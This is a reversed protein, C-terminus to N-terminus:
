ENNEKRLAIEITQEITLKKGEEWYKSFKEESLQKKLKTITQENDILFPKDVKIRSSQIAAEVFGLLLTAKHSQNEIRFIEALYQISYAIRQKDELDYFKNLSEGIFEWALKYDGKHYALLGLHNLSVAIGSKDGVEQQLALCENYLKLAQENDGQKFVLIGLNSLSLAIGFKDGLERQLALSEEYFKQAQEYDGQDYSRIGLNNLCIAIGSKDGIERLLALSEDYFKQAQKYDGQIDTLLGLNNLSLAIGSKDGVERRLFLSEEIFKIAQEYNGQYQLVNGLSNLSKAIGSKDGIERWLFLSEEYFKQAQEYDGQRNAFFGASYLVKARSSSSIGHTNSLISKLLRRGTFYYGRMDWFDRIAGVLRSGEESDGNKLSWEIASQLNGHETELMELCEKAEPGRLKPETTESLEMFYHLHKSLINKTENAEKLKEEGYHRISELIRYRAEDTDFIIISKELLLSLLDLIDEKNVKDNSCIEEASELTWGDIFVSLRSWLIKERDSLLDYSWDILARLTQQRPLATRKGGTLLSFRSNLRECIREVTLVKARAAALEIALPIGDLHSCIGALAPANE